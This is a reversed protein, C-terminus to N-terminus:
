QDVHPMSAVHGLADTGPSHLLAQLLLAWDSALGAKEGVSAASVNRQPAGTVCTFTLFPCRLLTVRM